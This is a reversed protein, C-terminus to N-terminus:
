LSTQRSAQSFAVPCNTTHPRQRISPFASDVFGRNVRSKVDASESKQNKCQRSLVHEILEVQFRYRASVQKLLLAGLSLGLVMAIIM